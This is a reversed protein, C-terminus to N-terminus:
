FIGFVPMPSKTQYQLGQDLVIWGFSKMVLNPKTILPKHTVARGHFRLLLTEKRITKMSVITGSTEQFNQLIVIMPKTHNQWIEKPLMRLGKDRLKM